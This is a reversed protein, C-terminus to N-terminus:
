CPESKVAPRNLRHCEDEILTRKQAESSDM